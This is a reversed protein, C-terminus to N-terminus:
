EELKERIAKLHRMTSSEKSRMARWHENGYNSKYCEEIWGNVVRFKYSHTEVIDTGMLKAVERVEQARDNYTKIRTFATKAARNVGEHDECYTERTVHCQHKFCWRETKAIEYHAAHARPTKPRNTHICSGCSKGMRLEFGEKVEMVLIGINKGINGFNNKFYELGRVEYTKGEDLTHVRDGIAIGDVVNEDRHATLVTGKGTIQFREYKKLDFTTM